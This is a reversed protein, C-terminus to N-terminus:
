EGKYKFKYETYLKNFIEFGRDTPSQKNSLLDDYDYIYYVNCLGKFKRCEIYIDELSVGKDFALVIDKGLKLLKNLQYPSIIKKSLSVSNHIGMSDLQMVFKEAEGIIVDESNLIDFYNEYLGFLYFEAYYSYYSIYKPIGKIKYDIDCTRGKFTLIGGEDNRIPFVVRNDLVDFSVEFKDQTKESIGDDYFLKCTNRIFREKFSENLIKTESEYEELRAEKNLSRKFKKLFQYSTSVNQKKVNNSYKLGCVKCIHQIAEGLTYDKIFQVLSFIDKIEYKQFESRTHVVTSLTDNLKVQVSTQNDGDELASQVRKNPIIKIHHCGISELVNEIYEPNDKLYIKLESKDL